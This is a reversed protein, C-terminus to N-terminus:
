GASSATAFKCVSKSKVAQADPPVPFRPNQADAQAGGTRLGEIPQLHKKRRADTRGTPSSISSEARGRATLRRAARGHAALARAAWSRRRDM